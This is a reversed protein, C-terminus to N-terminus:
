YLPIAIWFLFHLKRIKYMNTQIALIIFIAQIIILIICIFGGYCKIFYKIQFITKYCKIADISLSEIVDAFDLGLLKSADKAENLLDNFKCKCIAKMSTLNVGVNECNDECLTINPYFLLIREKLPVDRGNPSEFYYCLDTFFEDSKNFIDINQNEFFKANEINIEPYYSLSKEITINVDKCVEDISLENGTDPNFFYFLTNELKKDNFFDAVLIILNRGELNYQKQVKEYCERFDIITSIMELEKLCEMTKYITITYNKSQYFDLHFDTDEFGNIYRKIYIDFHNSELEEFNVNLFFDTYLYCKKKDELRCILDEDEITDDPCENYCEYNFQYKYDNDNYCNDICKGKNRVLLPADNPCQNNETCYYSNFIFYYYYQCKLVCNTTEKEEPM